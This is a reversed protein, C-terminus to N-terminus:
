CYFVLTSPMRLVKEVCVCMCGELKRCEGLAYWCLLDSLSSFSSTNLSCETACCGTANQARQM